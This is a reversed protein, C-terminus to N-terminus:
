NALSKRRGVWETFGTYMIIVSLVIIILINIVISVSVDYPNTHADSFVKQFYYYDKPILLLGFLILYTTDLRSIKPSNIFLFLPLLVHLLKYDASITPLLLMAFVLLAVRKWLDQEIFIVYLITLVGVVGMLLLYIMMVQESMPQSSRGIYTYLAKGLLVIFATIALLTIKKRTTQKSFVLYLVATFGVIGGLPLYFKSANEIITKPLENTEFYIIKILTFLSVGRQIRRDGFSTFSEFLFNSTVNSGRLLFILNDVAGGKFFLLCTFTILATAGLCVVIERYKKEPIFLVVLIIPLLKMSIAVALFIASISYKKRSFFYIFGLLFVFVLGEFNGRDLTFLLPYSLFTIIFINTANKYKQDDWLFIGGFTLFSISILLAYVHVANPIWSFLYGIIVLLPYQASHHLLYPDLSKGEKVVISFDSFAVEPDFLFTNSPYPLGRIAGNYYHYFVGVSFGIIIILALISIKEGKTMM